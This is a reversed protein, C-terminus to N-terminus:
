WSGSYHTVEIAAQPRTCGGMTTIKYTLAALIFWLIPTSQGIPKDITLIGQQLTDQPLMRIIDEPTGGVLNRYLAYDLRTGMIEKPLEGDKQAKSFEKETLPNFTYRNFPWMIISTETKLELSLNDLKQPDHIFTQIEGRTLDVIARNNSEPMKEAVEGRKAIFFYPITDLTNGPKLNAKYWAIMKDIYEENAVGLSPWKNKDTKLETLKQVVDELTVQDPKKKDLLYEYMEKTMTIQLGERENHELQAKMTEDIRTMNPISDTQVETSGNPKVVHLGREYTKDAKYAPFFMQVLGRKQIFLRQDIMTGYELPQPPTLEPPVPTEPSPPPPTQEIKQKVMIAPNECYPILALRVEFTASPDTIQKETKYQEIIKAYIPNNSDIVKTRLKGGEVAINNANVKDLSPAFDAGSLSVDGKENGHGVIFSKGQDVRYMYVAHFTSLEEKTISQDLQLAGDKYFEQAIGEVGFAQDIRKGRKQLYSVETAQNTNQLRVSYIDLMLLNKILKTKDQDNGQEMTKIKAAVNKWDIAQWWSNQVDPTFGKLLPSLATKLNQDEFNNYYDMLIKLDGPLTSPDKAELKGGKLQFSEKFRGIFRDPSEATEAQDVKKEEGEPSNTEPSIGSVAVVPLKALNEKVMQLTKDLTGGVYADMIEQSVVANTKQCYDRFLEHVKMKYEQEIFKFGLIEKGKEIKLGTVETTEGTPNGNKFETYFTVKGNIADYRVAKYMGKGMKEYKEELQDRVKKDPCVLSLNSEQIYLVRDMLNKELEEVFASLESDYKGEKMELNFGKAATDLSALENELDEHCETAHQTLDDATKRTIEDRERLKAELFVMDIRRGSTLDLTAVQLDGTFQADEVKFFQPNKNEKSKGPQVQLEFRGSQHNYVVLIQGYNQAGIRFELYGSEGRKMPLVPQDLWKVFNDIYAKSVKNTELVGRVVDKNQLQPTKVTAQEIHINPDQLIDNMNRVRGDKDLLLMEEASLGKNQQDNLEIPANTPQENSFYIVMSEM